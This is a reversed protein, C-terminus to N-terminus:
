QLVHFDYLITELVFTDSTDVFYKFLKQAIRSVMRFSCHERKAPALADFLLHKWSLESKHPRTRHTEIGGAHNASNKLKYKEVCKKFKWYMCERHSAQKYEEYLVSIENLCSTRVIYSLNVSFVWPYFVTINSAMSRPRGNFDLAWFFKVWTYKCVVLVSLLDRHLIAMKSFFSFRHLNLMKSRALYWLM